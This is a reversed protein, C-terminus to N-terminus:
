KSLMPWAAHNWFRSLDDGFTTNQNFWAENNILPNFGIKNFTEQGYGKYRDRFTNKPSSDYGYAYGYTNRDQYNNIKSMTEDFLAKGAAAPDNLVNQKVQSPYYSPSV